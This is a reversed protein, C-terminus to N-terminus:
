KEMVFSNGKSSNQSKTLLQLNAPVHLGCVLPHSLPIIHDVELGRRQAIDYLEIIYLEDFESLKPTAKRLRKRRIATSLNVRDKNEQRWKRHLIAQHEKTKDAYKKSALKRAEPNKSVWERSRQNHREKNATRWVDKREKECALCWTRFLRKGTVRSTNSPALDTFLGCKSCNDKLKENM